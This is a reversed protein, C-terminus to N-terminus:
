RRYRNVEDLITRLNMEWRDEPVDETIGLLFRRHDRAEALIKRTTQRIREPPEVHLSSPFNVWLAKDPWLEHAEKVSVDCTPPPTLAEIYDLASDQIARAYPRTIGDFHVGALKGGKHLTECMENYVPLHYQRFLAPSVVSATINGCINIALLPAGAAIRCQERQKEMLIEYLELIKERRDFWEFSFRELGMYILMIDQLPSYGLKGRIFFDGGGIREQRIVADYNERYHFDSIYAKLPEYDKEDSFLYKIKWPLNPGRDLEVCTLVGRPTEIHIHRQPQEGVDKEMLTRVCNPTSVKFFDAKRYVICLGDNRLEREARGYEIKNEYATFPVRDTEHGLLARTVRERPTLDSQM